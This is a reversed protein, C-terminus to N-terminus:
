DWWIWVVAGTSITTDFRKRGDPAVVGWDDASCADVELLRILKELAGAGGRVRVEVSWTRCPCLKIDKGSPDIAEVLQLFKEVSFANYRGGMAEAMARAWDRPTLWESCVFTKDLDRKARARAEPVTFMNCDAYAAITEARARKFDGM